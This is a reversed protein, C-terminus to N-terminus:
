HKREEGNGEGGSEKARRMKRKEERGRGDRRKGKKKEKRKKNKKIFPHLLLVLMWSSCSSRGAHVLLRDNEPLSWCAAARSAAAVLGEWRGAMETPFEVNVVIM